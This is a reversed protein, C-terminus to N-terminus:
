KFEPHEVMRFFLKCNKCSGRPVYREPDVIGLGKLMNLCDDCTKWEYETANFVHQEERLEKLKALTKESEVIHKHVFCFENGAAAIHRCRVRKNHRRIIRVCQRRKQPPPPDVVDVPVAGDPMGEAPIEVFLNVPTTYEPTPLETDTNSEGNPTSMKLHKIFIIFLFLFFVFIIQLWENQYGNM